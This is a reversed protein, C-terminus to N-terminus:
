GHGAGVRSHWARGRPVRWMGLRGLRQTPSVLNAADVAAGAALLQATVEAGGVQAALHLPTEGNQLLLLSPPLDPAMHLQQM